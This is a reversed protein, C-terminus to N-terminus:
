MPSNWASRASGPAMSLCLWIRPRHEVGPLREGLRDDRGDLRARDAASADVVVDKRM